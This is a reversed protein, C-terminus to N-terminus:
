HVQLAQEIHEQLPRDMANIHHEIWDTFDHAIFSRIEALSAQQQDDQLDVLRALMQQHEAQHISRDPFNSEAMLDQEFAFHEQTHKVMEAFLRRLSGNPIRELLDLYAVMQAHIENMKGAPYSNERLM